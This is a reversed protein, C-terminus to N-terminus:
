RYRGGTGRRGEVPAGLHRSLQRVQESLAAVQAKLDDLEAKRKHYETFYPPYDDRPESNVTM